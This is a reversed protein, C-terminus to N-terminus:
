KKGAQPLSETTAGSPGAARFRDEWPSVLFKLVGRQFLLVYGWALIDYLLVPMFHIVCGMFTENKKITLCRNKLLEYHLGDSLYRRAFPRNLGSDPRYSGGRVHYAVASPVYYARWGKNRARWAVDLDEYFMRFRSDFYGNVDKIDELMKRRYFATSGTVGFIHGQTEFQGRDATGYGREKASRWVSLSLGASDLIRGTSRRLVKPSVMGIRDHVLFGRLAERICDKDLIVDDNMCMIFEGGSSGIGKNLAAAYGLNGDGFYLRASPYLAAVAADLGTRSSNDIIVTEFAPNTQERLSDLCSRIYDKAGITVVIVTVTM